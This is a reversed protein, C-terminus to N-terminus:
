AVRATSIGDVVLNHGSIHAAEHSGLFLIAHAVDEPRGASRLPSRAPEVHAPEVHAPDSAASVAGSPPVGYVPELRRSNQTIKTAIEGPSVANCRINHDAYDVAIQRTLGIIGAKTAAYAAYHPYGFMGQISAVNVISGAGADIMLPIACRCTRYVSALNVDMVRQWRDPETDVVTGEVDVGACNVLIDLGGYRRATEEVLAAVAEDSSVDTEIFVAEGSGAAIRDECDKGAEVDRDAIVVRAGERAFLLSTAEGIGNAGGTILAVKNQLRM